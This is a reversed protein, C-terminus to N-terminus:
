APQHPDVLPQLIPTANHRQNWRAAIQLGQELSAIIGLWVAGGVQFSLDVSFSWLGVLLGLLPVAVAGLALVTARTAGKCRKQRLVIKRILGYTALISLSLPVAGVPGNAVIILSFIIIAITEHRM